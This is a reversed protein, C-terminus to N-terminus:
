FSPKKKKKKKNYRSLRHATWQEKQIVLCLAIKSIIKKLYTKLYM